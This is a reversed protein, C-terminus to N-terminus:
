DRVEVVHVRRCASETQDTTLAASDLAELTGNHGRLSGALLTRIGQAEVAEHAIYAPRALKLANM